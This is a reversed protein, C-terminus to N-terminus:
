GSLDHPFIRQKIELKAYELLLDFTWSVGPKIFKQKVKNWVTDERMADVFNHGAWTLRFTNVNVPFGYMDKRIFGDILGAEILLASHYDRQEETYGSLDPFEDQERILEARLLLLRILEMDRKM